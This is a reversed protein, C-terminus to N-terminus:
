LHLRTESILVSSRNETNTGPHEPPMKDQEVRYTGAIHYTKTCTEIYFVIEM